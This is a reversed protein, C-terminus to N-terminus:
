VPEDRELWELLLARLQSKHGSDQWFHDAGDIFKTEIGFQSAWQVLRKSSTFVDETGFIALAPFRETSGSVRGIFSASWNLPALLRTIPALLPSILLYSTTIKLRSSSDAGGHGSPVTGALALDVQRMLYAKLEANMQTLLDAGSPVQGAVFSGYSYGAIMLHMQKLERGGDWQGCGMLFTAFATADSIEPKLTWSPRRFNFTGIYSYGANLLTSVTLRVTPDDYSGGLPGYPHAIVAIKSLHSSKTLATNRYIRIDITPGNPSVQLSLELTTPLPTSM